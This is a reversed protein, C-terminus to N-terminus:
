RNMNFNDVAGTMLEISHGGLKRWLEPNSKPLYDTIRHPDDKCHPSSCQRSGEFLDTNPQPVRFKDMEYRNRPVSIIGDFYAIGSALYKFDLRFLEFSFAYSADHEDDTANDLYAALTIVGTRNHPAKIEVEGCTIWKHREGREDVIFIM